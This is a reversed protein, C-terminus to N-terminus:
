LIVEFWERPYAYEEGFSDKIVYWKEQPDNKLFTADYVQNKIFGTNSKDSIFKVKIYDDYKGNMLM